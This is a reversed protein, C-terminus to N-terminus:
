YGSRATRGQAVTVGVALRELVTDDRLSEFTPDIPLLVSWADGERISRRLWEVAREREGLSEYLLAMATAPVWGDHARQEWDRQVRRAREDDGAAAYVLAPATAFRDGGAATNDYTGVTALAAEIDGERLLILALLNKAPAFGPHLELTRRLQAAAEASRGDFYLLMGLAWNTGPHTPEETLARRAEAIADAPRHQAALAAAYGMDSEQRPLLLQRSREFERGADGPEWGMWLLLHGRARHYDADALGHAHATALMKEVRRLSPRSPGCGLVAVAVSVDIVNAYAPVLGTDRALAGELLELAKGYSICDVRDEFLQAFALTEDAIVDGGHPRPPTVPSTEATGPSVAGPRWMSLLSVLLLAAGAAWSATRIWRARGAAAPTGAVAIAFDTSSTAPLRSVPATLRYGRKPVTEIYRPNRASDGLARRLESVHRFVASDTVFTEPWVATFLDEKAVVDGAHALLCGLVAAVKPELRMGVAGAPFRRLEGSAPSFRWEGVLYDRTLM